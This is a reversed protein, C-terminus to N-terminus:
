KLEGIPKNASKEHEIMQNISYVAIIYSHDEDWERTHLMKLQHYEIKDKNMIRYTHYYVNSYEFMRGAYEVTQAQRFGELDDPYMTFSVADLFEQMTMEDKLDPNRTDYEPTSRIVNVNNADGDVLFVAEYDEALDMLINEKYKSAVRAKYERNNDIFGLAVRSPEEGARSANVFKIMRYEGRENRYIGSYTKNYSLARRVNNIRTMNLVREYDSPSVSDRCYRLMSETYNTDNKHLGILIKEVGKNQDYPVITNEDLDVYYVAMYESVLGEIISYNRELEETLQMNKAREDDVKMFSAIVETPKGDSRAAVQVICRRLQDSDKMRFHFEKHDEEALYGAVFEGDVMSSMIKVNEPSVDTVFERLAEAYPLVKGIRKGANISKIPYIKDKEFNILYIADFEDIVRNVVSVRRSSDRFQETFAEVMPSTKIVLNRLYDTVEPKIDCFAKVIRKDFHTGAGEILVDYAEDISLSKKYPRESILADFVDTVMIIRAPLPINDGALGNPYGTGDWKEHHCLIIERAVKTVPNDQAEPFLEDIISAGFSTHEKVIDFEEPTLRGPKNLIVDSVYIKGIDHLISAYKIYYCYDEDRLEPFTASQRLEDVLMSCLQGTREIHEGTNLDRSEVLMALAKIIRQVTFTENPLTTSM